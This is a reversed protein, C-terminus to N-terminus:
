AMNRASSMLAQTVSQNIESLTNRAENMAARFTEAHDKMAQQMTSRVEDLKQNMHVNADAEEAAKNDGASVIRGSSSGAMTVAQIARSFTDAFSAESHAKDGLRKAESQKQEIQSKRNLYAEEAAHHEKRAKQLAKRESSTKPKRDQLVQLELEKSKWAARLDDYSGNSGDGRILEKLGKTEKSAQQSQLYAKRSKFVSFTGAGGQVVGGVLEAISSALGATFRKDAAKMETDFIAQAMKVGHDMIKLESNRNEEQLKRYFEQFYRLIEGLDVEIFASAAALRAELIGPGVRASGGAQPPLMDMWWERIVEGEPLREGEVRAQTQLAPGNISAGKALSATGAVAPQGPSSQAPVAGGSRLHISENNISMNM